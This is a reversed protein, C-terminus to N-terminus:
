LNHRPIEDHLEKDFILVDNEYAEMRARLYFSTADAWMECSAETRLRLDDRELEDSWHCTGFASLPRDPHITWRERAISGAVLGHDADRAKGFDDEIILHVEGTVMDTEQRRVHNEPRIEETIWPDAATAPPFTWESDGTPATPIM